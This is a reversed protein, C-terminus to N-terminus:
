FGQQSQSYLDCVLKCLKENGLPPQSSGEFAEIMIRNFLIISCRFHLLARRQDQLLARRQDRV